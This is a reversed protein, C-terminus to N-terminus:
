ELLYHYKRTMKIKMEKIVLWIFCRKLHKNASCIQKQINEKSIDRFIQGNKISNNIKLNKVISCEKYILSALGKASMLNAFIKEGDTSQERM